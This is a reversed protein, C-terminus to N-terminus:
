PTCEMKGGSHPYLAFNLQTIATFLVEMSRILEPDAPNGLTDKGIHKLHNYEIHLDHVSSLNLQRIQQTLARIQQTLANIAVVRNENNTPVYAVGRSSGVGEPPRIAMFNEKQAVMMCPILNETLKGCRGIGM